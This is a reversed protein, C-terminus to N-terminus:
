NQNKCKERLDSKFLISKSSKPNTSQSCWRGGGAALATTSLRGLVTM